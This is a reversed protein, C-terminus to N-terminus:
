ESQYINMNILGKRCTENKIFEIEESGKSTTGKFCFVNGDRLKIIGECLWECGM